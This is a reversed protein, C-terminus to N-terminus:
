KKKKKEKKESKLLGMHQHRVRAACRLLGSRRIMKGDVFGTPPLSARDKLGFGDAVGRGVLHHFGDEALLQGGVAHRHPFPLDLEAM